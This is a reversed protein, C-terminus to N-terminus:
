VKLGRPQVNECIFRVVSELSTGPGFIAAVGNEKLTSWLAPDNSPVTTVFATGNTLEGKAQDGQITVKRVQHGVVYENFKSYGVAQASTHTGTGQFLNFLFVLLLAIVIWLALNRLNNM